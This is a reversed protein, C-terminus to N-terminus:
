KNEKFDADIVDDPGNKKEEQGHDHGCTGDACGDAQPGAQGADGQPAAGGAQKAGAAKYVEAYYSPNWPMSIFTPRGNGETLVGCDDNISPNYPGRMSGLGKKRLIASASDVLAKAVTPDNVFDFFGFFGVSDKNYDNHSRNIIAAIRGVPKGDRYAIM